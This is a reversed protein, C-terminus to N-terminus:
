LLAEILPTLLILRDYRFTRSYITRGPMEDDFTIRYRDSEVKVIVGIGSHRNVGLDKFRDGVKFTNNM